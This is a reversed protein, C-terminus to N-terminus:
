YKINEVLAVIAIGTNVVCRFEVVHGVIDSLGLSRTKNSKFKDLLSSANRREANCDIDFHSSRVSEGISSRVMSAFHAAQESLFSGSGDSPLMSKPMLNELYPMSLGHLSNRHYGLNLNGSKALLPLKYQQKQQALLTALCAKQIGDFDGDSTSFYNRIPPDSSAAVSHTAYASIRQLYNTYCLDMAPSHLDPRVQNGLRNM